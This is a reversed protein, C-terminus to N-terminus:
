TAERRSRIHFNLYSAGAIILFFVVAKAQGVGENGTPNNFMTNYIDLSLLRTEENAIGNLALNQDFMKFGSSLSLFTCIAISSSVVPIIIRFLTQWHSAGDVEAAETLDRSVNALAAIYIVMMYGVQQWCTMIILGWFGYSFGSAINKHFLNLVSGIMLSWIYGLVIGGVLNPMFFVSRFFNSGKLGKSLLVALAFAFVNVIVSSVIAFLVTIGLSYWFTTGPGFAQVYNQFGVFHWIEITKYNTFSFLIAM